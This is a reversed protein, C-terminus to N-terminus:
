IYIKKIKDFDYEKVEIDDGFIFKGLDQFITNDTITKKYLNEQNYLFREKNKIYLSHIDTKLLKLIQNSIMESKIKVDSHTSDLDSIVDVNDYSHDIVDDFMDFDMDRLDQVIGQHGIILPFQLNYFPKVCKETKFPIPTHSSELVIDIYSKKALNNHLGFRGDFNNEDLQILPLNYFSEFTDGKIRKFHFDIKKFFSVYGNEILGADVLSKYMYVRHPRPEGILCTYLKEKPTDSWKLGYVVENLDDNFEHFKYDNNYVYEDNIKIYQGHIMQRNYRSCFIRPGGLTYKFFDYQPHKTELQNYHNFPILIKIKTNLIDVKKSITDNIIIDIDFGEGLLDICFVDITINYKIISATKFDRLKYGHIFFYDFSQSEYKKLDDESTIRYLNEYDDFNLGSFKWHEINSGDSFLLIKKKNKIFSKIKPLTPTM